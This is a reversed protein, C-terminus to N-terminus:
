SLGERIELRLNRPREAEAIPESAPTRLTALLIGSALYSVADILFALPAGILKVLAGAVVPGGTQAIASTQELRAYASTLLPGPV